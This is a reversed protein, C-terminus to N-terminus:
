NIVHESMNKLIMYICDDKAEQPTDVCHRYDVFLAYCIGGQHQSSNYIIGDINKKNHKLMLRIFESVIQTPVYDINEDGDKNVPLAMESSFRELFRKSARKHSNKQDYISPVKIQKTFDIMLSSRSTEFIGAYCHGGKTSQAVEKVATTLTDAGYFLPIGAPSMRSTSKTREPTNTGLDCAHMQRNSESLIRIRTVQTGAPIPRIIQHMLQGAADLIGRPDDYQDIAFDDRFFMFRTKYKVFYVFKEWMDQYQEFGNYAPVSYENGSLLSIVDKEIEGHKSFIPELDLVDSIDYPEPIWREGDHAICANEPIVYERRLSQQVHKLFMELTISDNDNNKRNCYSCSNYKANAKIFNKLGNDGICKFCIYKRPVDGFERSAWELALDSSGM